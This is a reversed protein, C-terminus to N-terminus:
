RRLITEIREKFYQYNQQEEEIMREYEARRRKLKQPNELIPLMDYPFTNKIQKIENEVKETISKLTNRESVLEKLVDRAPTFANEGIITKGIIRMTELDGANYAEVARLFLAIEGDTMDPNLDPHLNKVIKYYLQKLERAEEDTLKEANSLEIARDLLRIKEDLKKQYAEFEVDLHQEIQAEDVAEKKNLREQILSLKRKLRLVKCQMKFLAIELTGLKIMYDAEINKCIVFRLEDRENLLNCLKEKLSKIERTLEEYAPFIIIKHNM